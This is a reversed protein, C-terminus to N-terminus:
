CEHGGMHHCKQFGRPFRKLSNKDARERGLFGKMDVVSMEIVASYLPIFERPTNGFQWHFSRIICQIVCYFLFLLAFFEFYAIRIMIYYSAVSDDCGVDPASRMTAFGVGSEPEKCDLPKTVQIFHMPMFIICIVCVARALQNKLIQKKFRPDGIDDFIVLLAVRYSLILPFMIFYPMMTMGLWTKWYAAKVSCEPKFFDFTFSFQAFFASIQEFLPPWEIPVDSVVKFSQMVGFCMILTRYTSYNSRLKRLKQRETEDDDAMILLPKDLGIALTPQGKPCWRYPFPRLSPKRQYVLVHPGLRPPPADEMLLKRLAKQDKWRQLFGANVERWYKVNM